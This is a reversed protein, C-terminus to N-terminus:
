IVRPSCTTLFTTLLLSPAFRLFDLLYNFNLSVLLVVFPPKVM